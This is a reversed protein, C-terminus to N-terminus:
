ISALHTLREDLATGYGSPWLLDDWWEVPSIPMTEFLSGYRDMTFGASAHGAQTAIYKPHKGSAILLSVFQHRLDHWAM